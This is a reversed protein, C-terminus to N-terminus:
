QESTLIRRPCAAPLVFADKLLQETEPYYQAKIQEDDLFDKEVSEQIFIQFGNKDLTYNDQEGRIDRVAASAMTLAASLMSARWSL